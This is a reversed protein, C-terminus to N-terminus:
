HCQYHTRLRPQLRLVTVILVKVILLIARFNSASSTGHRRNTLAAPIEAISYGARAAGVAAEYTDGLYYTPFKHSFESLLPECIIRFGSTSDTITRGAVRSVVTGLLRMAFRRSASPTLTSDSSLYRSGIVLHADHREAATALDRIQHAPHQGDADVQVVAAYQHDVAFRFGARLAGGVGLNVPLRLVTAGAMEARQATNDTSGDDVVLVDLRQNRVERVVHEISEQENLAPVIVLLPHTTVM